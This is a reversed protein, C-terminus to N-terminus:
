EVNLTLTIASPSGTLSELEFGFVDGASVATSGWSGVGGTSVSAATLAPKGTGAISDGNVPLAGAAKWVDIVCTTSANAVIDWRTVDGSYPVRVYGVSGVTISDANTGDGWACGPTQGTPAHTHDGEAVTGATTGFIADATLTGATDTLNISTTDSVATLGGGSGSQDTVETWELEGGASQRCLYASDPNGPVLRIQGRNSPQPTNLKDIRM